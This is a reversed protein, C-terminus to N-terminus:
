QNEQKLLEDAIEYSIKTLLEIHPTKIQLINSAALVGQMAACAAYFRKSMGKTHTIALHPDNVYPEPFASEQGLKTNM